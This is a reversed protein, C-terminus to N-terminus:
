VAKGEWIKKGEKKASQDFALEQSGPPSRTMYIVGKETGSLDNCQAAAVCKKCVLRTLSAWVPFLIDGEQREKGRGLGCQWLSM